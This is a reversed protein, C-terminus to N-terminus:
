SVDLLLAVTFPQEVSGFYSLQQEVGNEYIQFDEKRLNGINRGSRDIVQAPVTILNTSVRVVDSEDVEADAPSAPQPSQVPTSAPASNTSSRLIPPAPPPGLQPAATAVTPGNSGKLVPAADQSRALQAFILVFVLVFLSRTVKKM